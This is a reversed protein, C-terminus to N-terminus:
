EAASERLARSRQISKLTAQLTRHALAIAEDLRACEDLATEDLPTQSVMARAANMCEDRMLCLEFTIEAAYDLPIATPEPARM